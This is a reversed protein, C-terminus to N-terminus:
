GSKLSKTKSGPQDHDHIATEISENKMVVPLTKTFIEINNFSLDHQNVKQPVKPLM